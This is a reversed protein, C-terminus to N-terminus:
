SDLYTFRDVAELGRRPTHFETGSVVLTSSALCMVVPVAVTVLIDLAIKARETYEFLRVLDDPNGLDHLKELNCESAQM